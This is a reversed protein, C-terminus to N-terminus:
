PIGGTYIGCCNNVFPASVWFKQCAEVVAALTREAVFNSRRGLVIYRLSTPGICVHAETCAHHGHRLQSLVHHLIYTGVTNGSVILLDHNTFIGTLYFGGVDFLRQNGLLGLSLTDTTISATTGALNTIVFDGSVLAPYYKNPTLGLVDIQM